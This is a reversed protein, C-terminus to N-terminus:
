GAGRLRDRHERVREVFAHFRAFGEADLDFRLVQFPVHVGRSGLTVRMGARVPKAEVSLYEVDYLFVGPEWRATAVTLLHRDWTLHLDDALALREYAPAPETV